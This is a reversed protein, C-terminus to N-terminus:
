DFVNEQVDHMKATRLLIKRIAKLKTTDPVKYVIANLKLALRRSVETTISNVLHDVKSLTEVDVENISESRTLISLPLLNSIQAGIEDLQPSVEFARLMSEQPANNQKDDKLRRIEARLEEISPKLSEIKPLLSLSVSSPQLRTLKVFSTSSGNLRVDAAVNLTATKNCTPCTSINKNNDVNATKDFATRRRKLMVPTCASESISNCSSDAKPITSASNWLCNHGHRKVRM